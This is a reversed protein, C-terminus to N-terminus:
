KNIKELDKSSFIEECLNGQNNFWRCKIGKFQNVVDDGNRYTRTVKDVVWMVPVNDLKRHKVKVLDGAIYFTKEIDTIMTIWQKGSSM